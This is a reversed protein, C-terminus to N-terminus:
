SSLDTAIAELDVKGKAEDRREFELILDVMTELPARHDAAQRDRIIELGGNAYEEFLGVREDVRDAALIDKDDSAGSALLDIFADLGANMFVEWPIQEASKAIPSRRENAYGLAAGFVMASAMTAFPQDNETLSKLLDDKDAPRNVRRAM